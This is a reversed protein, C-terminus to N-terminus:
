LKQKLQLLIIHDTTDILNREENYDDNEELHKYELLCYQQRGGRKNKIGVTEEEESM